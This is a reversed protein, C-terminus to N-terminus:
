NNEDQKGWKASRVFFHFKEEQGGQVVGDVSYISGEGIHTFKDDYADKEKACADYEVKRGDDLKAVTVKRDFM